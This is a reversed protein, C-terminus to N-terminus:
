DISWSGSMSKEENYKENTPSQCIVGEFRVVLAEAEPATYTLKQEIM